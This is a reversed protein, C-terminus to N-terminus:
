FFIYNSKKRFSSTQRSFIFILDMFIYCYLYTFLILKGLFCLFFFCTILFFSGLVRYFGLYLLEITITTKLVYFNAKKREKKERKETTTLHSFNLNMREM